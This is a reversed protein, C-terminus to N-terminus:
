NPCRGDRVGRIVDKKGDFFSNVLSDFASDLIPLLPIVDVRIIHLYKTLGSVEIDVRDAAEQQTVGDKVTQNRRM